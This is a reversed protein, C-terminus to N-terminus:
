ALIICLVLITGNVGNLLIFERLVRYRVWLFLVEVHM